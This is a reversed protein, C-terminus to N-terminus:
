RPNCRVDTVTSVHMGAEAYAARVPSGTLTSHFVIPSATRPQVLQRGLGELRQRGRGRGRGRRYQNGRADQTALDARRSAPQGPIRRSGPESGCGRGSGAMVAIWFSAPRGLYYAVLPM